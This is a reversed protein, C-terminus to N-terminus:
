SLGASDKRGKLKSATLRKKGWPLTSRGGRERKRGQGVSATGRGAPGKRKESSFGSKKKKEGSKGQSREEKRRLRKRVNRKKGWARKRQNRDELYNQHRGRKGAITDRGGGTSVKEVPRGWQRNEGGIETNKERQGERRQDPQKKGQSVKKKLKAAGRKPSPREGDGL